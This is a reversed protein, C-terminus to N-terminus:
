TLVKSHKKNLVKPGLAKPVDVDVAVAKPEKRLYKDEQHDNHKCTLCYKNSRSKKIAPSM